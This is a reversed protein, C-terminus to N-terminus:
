PKMYTCDYYCCDHILVGKNKTKHIRLEQYEAPDNFTTYGECGVYVTADKDKIQNLKEILEKVTM